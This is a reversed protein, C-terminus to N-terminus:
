NFIIALATSRTDVGERGAAEADCTFCTGNFGRTIQKDLSSNEDRVPISDYMLTLSDTMCIIFLSVDM